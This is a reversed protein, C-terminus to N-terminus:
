RGTKQRTFFYLRAPLQSRFTLTDAALSAPLLVPQAPSIMIRRVEASGGTLTLEIAGQTAHLEIFSHHTMPITSEGLGEFQLKRVLFYPWSSEEVVRLWQAQGTTHEGPITMPQATRVYHSRPKPEADMLEVFAALSAQTMQKRFGLRSEKWAFPTFFDASSETVDFTRQPEVLIWGKSGDRLQIPEYIWLEDKPFFNGPAKPHLQLSLGAIAHLTPTEILIAQGEQYDIRHMLEVIRQRVERQAELIPRLSRGAHASLWAPAQFAVPSRWDVNAQATAWSKYAAKLQKFREETTVHTQLCTALAETQQRDQWFLSALHPKLPQKLRQVAAPDFGVYAFPPFDSPDLFKVFFFKQNHNEPDMGDPGLVEPAQTVLEELSVHTGSPGQIKASRQPGSFFPWLEAYRQLTGFLRQLTSGAWEYQTGNLATTIPHQALERCRAKVDM